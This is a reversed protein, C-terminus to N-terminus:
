LILREKLDARAARDVIDTQEAVPMWPVLARMKVVLDAAMTKVFKAKLKAVSDESRAVDMSTKTLRALAWDYKKGLAEIAGQIAKGERGEAGLLSSLLHNTLKVRENCTRRVYDELQAMAYTQSKTAETGAREEQQLENNLGSFFMGDLLFAILEKVVIRLSPERRRAVDINSLKGWKGESDQIELQILGKLEGTPVAIRREDEEPPEDQDAPEGEDGAPEM